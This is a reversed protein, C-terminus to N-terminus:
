DSMRHRRLLHNDIVKNKSILNESLSKLENHNRILDERASLLEYNKNELEGIIGEFNRRIELLENNKNELVSNQYVSYRNKEHITENLENLEDFSSQPDDDDVYVM